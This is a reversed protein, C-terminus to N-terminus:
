QGDGVRELGVPHAREWKSGPGRAWARLKLRNTNACYTCYLRCLDLVPNRDCGFCRFPEPERNIGLNSVM